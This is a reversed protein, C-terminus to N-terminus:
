EEKFIYLITFIEIFLNQYNKKFFLYFVLKNLCKSFKFKMQNLIYKNMVEIMQSKNLLLILM